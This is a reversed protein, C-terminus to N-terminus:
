GRLPRRRARELDLHKMMHPFLKLHDFCVFVCTIVHVLGVDASKHAPEPKEVVVRMQCMLMDISSTVTKLEQKTLLHFGKAIAPSQSWVWLARGYVVWLQIMFPLIAHGSIQDLLCHCIEQPRGHVNTLIAAM